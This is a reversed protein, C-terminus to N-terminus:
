RADPASSALTVVLDSVTVIGMVRGQGDTCVLPACREHAPRATARLVAERVPTSPAVCTARQWSRRGAHDDLVRCPRGHEDVLVDAPQEPCLTTTAPRLASVVQDTRATRDVAAVVQRAVEPRVSRAMAASPAGVYYGQGLPVGLRVLVELEARTEIGETLLWADMRGALDGLMSVMAAKVPDADVGSVLERDVKVIDPRLHLLRALGAYGTGADDVAVLGGRERVDAVLRDLVALDHPRSHETLEVVLRDLRPRSALAALVADDGVVHPDLNVSLFTNPPLADLARLARRLVRAQLRGSVGREQAAAFWADPPADVVGRPFRALLEYGVVAGATLEVVPQVHLAPQRQDAVVQALAADWAAGGPAVGDPVSPGPLHAPEPLM